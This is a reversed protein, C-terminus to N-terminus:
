IIIQVEVWGKESHQASAKHGESILRIELSEAAAWLEPDPTQDHEDDYVVPGECSYWNEEEDYEFIWGQIEIKKNM